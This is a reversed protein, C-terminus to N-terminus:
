RVGGGMAGLILWVLQVPSTVVDAIATGIYGGQRLAYVFRSREKWKIDMHDGYFEDAVSGCCTVAAKGDKTRDWIVANANFADHERYRDQGQIELKVIALPYEAGKIAYNFQKKMLAAPDATDGAKLSFFAQFLETDVNVPDRLILYAPHAGSIKKDSEVFFPIGATVM